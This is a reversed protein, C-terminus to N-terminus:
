WDETKNTNKVDNYYSRYNEKFSKTAESLDFSRREAKEPTIYDIKKTSRKGLVIEVVESLDDIVRSGTAELRRRSNNGSEILVCELGLAQATEYDHVTDGVMLGRGTVGGKQFFARGAEIKSDAEVGSLAVVERFFVKLDYKELGVTLNKKDSASLIYQPVSNLFLKELVKKAGKRLDVPQTDYCAFFEDALKEYSDVSFDFGLKKYYERVPFGFNEAYYAEDPVFLGRKELSQSVAFFGAKMDDLLTGNWDWVVYDYNM